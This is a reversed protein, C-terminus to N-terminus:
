NVLRSRDGFLKSGIRLWTAGAEVAEQWDNSMGMSCDPLNLSDALFRCERFVNKREKRNLKIPAMTMLGILRFNKFEVLKPWLSLLQDKTFGGKTPDEYLKVQLMIDPCKKEEFAIRSVKEMLDLSDISHIVDFNKIVKRVKNSQLHGIFHWRLSYIEKLSDVKPLAEQIRSEGFDKQGLDALNAVAAVPQGKSVALLNVGKPLCRSINTWESLNM